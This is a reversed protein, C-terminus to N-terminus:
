DVQMDSSEQGGVNKKRREILFSEIRNKLETNPIVDEISLPVRNFPDKTDSLLHSKITSRDIVARSSPLTVPDRMVTFMLPDLFEDPVDGLEEEADMSAKADEVKVVFQRLLELEAEVKVGRRIAIAEASAFVEKSYSRGDNAVAQVFEDQDSLNIFVQLIDSLLTKPNFRYKEANRVRLEQYKPGVLAVLNYDLMAALRDVIEPMMFPAKTEATFVKLLEVTSRGLSIYGSAHRELQRLTGERERRHETSQTNWSPDDMEVQINHIQTLEGLSEDMLYTVDNIMLNIFRVFQDVNLAAANLAERHTPNDWIVKLIAAISRMSFKDYFQSSAGTQEVEIYFHMLTPMLHKLALPHSNLLYGLLGGNKQRNYDWIGMFLMDNIKAKLFPNKIYWTSSLFTLAFVVLETKGSLEFREPANQVIFLYFEIVDEIIYEPLVRFAMPVEKSLPLEVLPTPHKKKPEAQRILWTSLFNTFGINRTVFEPDLLQAQYAFQSSRIKAMEMKVTNIAAERRAQLPGGMWSGDGNLYDLHRQIDDLHKATEGLHHITRQYGYHGMAITLYFIDSIFNPPPAGPASKNEEAWENAEKSDAKIRTEDNLDVRSSRAYYYPDIRDMKTYNADMFPEAFQLLVASLNFLFSDTAVTAPDVQMGTRKVNLKIVRAFYDLVPERSQPSARVLTNFIGYLSSQLSKLTGRLSSYSSEIDNRSRKEPESFYSKAIGPWERPFVGLRCLPGMLSTIEFNYATAAPPNWDEMKTIMIAIPKVSVLAELGGIVSRWSSDGGGLGEPRFLSPHFLLQRVVPGLVGELEDDPEFRRAIDQLFQDVDTPGLRNSSTSPGSLLPASFASISLLPEVLEAAGLPRSVTPQPFMEPEQLTLGAYSVILDRVKELKAAANQADQPFYGKKFLANRTSNLRKWCEVLYEFVTQEAPLCAVVAMYEVDDLMGNPDIELRSILLRDTLTEDISKVNIGESALEEALGKLWVLEYGSEEAKSKELTVSLIRCVSDHTWVPLDLKILAKKKQPIPTSPLAPSPPTAIIPKRVPPRTSTAPKPAPAQVPTASSSTAASSAESTSASTTQLRQLRRMRIRDADDQPTTLESM